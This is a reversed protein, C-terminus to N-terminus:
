LPLKLGTGLLRSTVGAHFDLYKLWGRASLDGFQNHKIRLNLDADHLQDALQITEQRTEVFCQKLSEMSAPEPRYADYEEEVFPEGLAVRLRRQGWREIGIIHTLTAIDNDKMKDIRAEVKKGSDILAQKLTDIDRKSAPREFLWQGGIDYPFM